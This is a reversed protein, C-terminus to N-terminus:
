VIINLRLRIAEINGSRIQTYQNKIALDDTSVGFINAIDKLLAYETRNKGSEIRSLSENCIGLYQAFELQSMPIEKRVEKVNEGIIRYIELSELLPLGALQPM